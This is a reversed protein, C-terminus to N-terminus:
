NMDVMILFNLKGDSLSQNSNNYHSDVASLGNFKPCPMQVTGCNDIAAYPTITNSNGINSNNNLATTLLYSTRNIMVQQQQQLPSSQSHQTSSSSSPSVSSTSISSASSCEAYVGSSSGVGSSSSSSSNENYIHCPMPMSIIPPQISPMLHMSNTGMLYSTRSTTPSLPPSPASPKEFPNILHSAPLKIISSPIGKPNQFFISYKTTYLSLRCISLNVHNRWILITCVHM